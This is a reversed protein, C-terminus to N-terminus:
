SSSVDSFRCQQTDGKSRPRSFLPGRGRHLAQDCGAAIVRLTQPRRVLGRVRRLPVWAAAAADDGARLRGRWSLVRFCDLRFVRRGRGVDVRAFAVMRRAILGTEEALERAVATAATEGPEVRGGPLSWERRLPPHGRRVLLVRGRALVLASVAPTPPLATKRFKPVTPQHM